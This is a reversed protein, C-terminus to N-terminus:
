FKAVQQFLFFSAQLVQAYCAWQNFLAKYMVLYQSEYRKQARLLYIRVRPLPPSRGRSAAGPLYGDGGGGGGGDSPTSQSGGGGGGNERTWGKMINAMSIAPSKDPGVGEVAMTKFMGRGGEGRGFPSPPRNSDGEGFPKTEFGGTAAVGPTGKLV